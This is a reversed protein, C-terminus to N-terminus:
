PNVVQYELGTWTAFFLTFHKPDDLGLRLKVKHIKTTYQIDYRQAWAAIDQRLQELHLPYPVPIEFAIYM